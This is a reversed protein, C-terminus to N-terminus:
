PRTCNRWRGFDRASEPCIASTCLCSAGAPRQDLEGDVMGIREVVEKTRSLAHSTHSLSKVRRRLDFVYGHSDDLHLAALETVDAGIPSRLSGEERVDIAHVGVEVERHIKIEPALESTTSRCLWSSIWCRPEESCLGM